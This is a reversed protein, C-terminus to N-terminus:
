KAVWGTNGIGSEKVYLTTGAGGDTRLFLSGVIATFVGEPSGSGTKVAVGGNILLTNDSNLVLAYNIDANGNTVFQLKGGANTCRIYNTTARTLSMGVPNLTNTYGLGVDITLTGTMTDGSRKVGQIGQVIWNAGGFLLVVSSSNSFMNVDAEDFTRINGTGHKITVKRTPSIQQLILIDGPSGGNITDLDDSAAAGETDVAHYSQTVTIAGNAITLTTSATLSLKDVGRITAHPTTDVKHTNINNEVDSFNDNLPQAKIEGVIPKLAM